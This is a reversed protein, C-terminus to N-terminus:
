RAGARGLDDVCLVVAKEPPNLYLGVIDRVTAELEPDTSFKFTGFRQIAGAHGPVGITPFTPTM